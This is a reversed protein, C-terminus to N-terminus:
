RIATRYNNLVFGSVDPASKKLRDLGENISDTSMFDERVVLVATDAMAAICEADAAALMPPTDLIVYDTQTRLQELLAALKGSNLLKAINRGCSESIGLTIGYKKHETLYQSPDADEQLLYNTLTQEKQVPMEFIKHLSPKRFDCDLLVVSRNKEALSLALNAAITSKGENEGISTVM